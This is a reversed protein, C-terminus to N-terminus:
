SYSGTFGLEQRDHFMGGFASVLVTMKIAFAETLLTKATNARSRTEGSTILRDESEEPHQTKTEITEVCRPTDKEIGRSTEGNPRGHAVASPADFILL